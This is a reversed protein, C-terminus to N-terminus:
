FRGAAIEVIQPLREVLYLPLSLLPYRVRESGKGRRVEAELTQLTPLDSNFRVALPAQKEAVFQHLSKLRGAHGAKVEIPVIRGGLELVYDVEANNSRGNRLWYTLERNPRQALLYQLHQGVFQEAGSGANVLETESQSAVTEWNLGCVANMLGVDLFILKFVKENLGAQLPLGSCHSHTVKAIVRAKELLDIDDRITASSAEPSVKSYGVKPGSQRAAFNFVRLMRTMDRRAAYKPFDDRYTDLIGAHVSAVDRLNESEAYAQVAEPMGGVFCYLRLLRILWQHILPPLPPSSQGGSPWAFAGIVEALRDQGVAKLFETFTMPGLHLYEIRGVPVPVPQASLMMELLSGAAVVPQEPLEERFYRLSAFASPAAQVEDLFLVTRASLRKNFRAELLNLIAAPDNGTFIGALDPHRELNVTLLDRDASECFAEVLTSKGVQRAGGVVLAKRKPRKLWEQLDQLQHRRMPM